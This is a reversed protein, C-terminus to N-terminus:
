GGISRDYDDPHPFQNTDVVRDGQGLRRWVELVLVCVATALGVDGPAVWADISEALARFVEYAGGGAVATTVAIRILEALNLHGKLADPATGLFSLISRIILTAKIRDIM